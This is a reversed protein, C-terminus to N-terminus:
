KQGYFALVTKAVHEVMEETMEPYVPIALCERAAQESAPFSDRKGLYRSFCPLRHLPEPYYVACGIGQDKLHAMLQDRREARIVYNNYVHTRGPRLALPKVPSDHFLRDYIAANKRRARNWEDLHPLKALLVAAQITDLRSNYGIVEHRYEARAGHVRLLRVKEEIEKSGTVVMGGDGYGGLNKSPYFSLAGADGIAGARKGECEAGIAQCADELVLLGHKKAIAMIAGMDAIQGFLHVPIIARTRETVAAEILDARILCTDPEVDVFVPSAGAHVVSSATAYFTFPTTIVEHGPGVGLARLALILADTGSAVAIAFPVRCYDAIRKEAEEVEPGLIFRQSRVVAEIRPLVESELGQFQASLDLLPIKM